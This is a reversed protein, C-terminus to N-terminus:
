PVLTRLVTAEATLIMVDDSDLVRDLSALALQLRERSVPLQAYPLTELLAALAALYSRVYRQQGAPGDPKPSM